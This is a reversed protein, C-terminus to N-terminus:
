LQHYIRYWSALDPNKADKWLKRHSPHCPEVPSHRGDTWVSVVSQRCLIREALRRSFLLLRAPRLSLSPLAFMETVDQATWHFLWSVHQMKFHPRLGPLNKRIKNKLLVVQLAQHWCAHVDSLSKTKWNRWPKPKDILIVIRKLRLILANGQSPVSAITRFFRNIKEM